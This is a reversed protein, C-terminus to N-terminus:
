KRYREGTNVLGQKLFVFFKTQPVTFKKKERCVTKGHFSPTTPM